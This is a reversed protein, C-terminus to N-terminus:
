YTNMKNINQVIYLIYLTIYVLTIKCKKIMNKNKIYEM